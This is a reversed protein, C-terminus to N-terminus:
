LLVNSLLGLILENEKKTGISIRICNALPGKEGFYRVLVKNDLLYNYIDKADKINKVNKTNEAYEYNEKDKTNKVKCLIFNAHSKFVQLSTIQKLLKEMREREKIIENVANEMIDKNM